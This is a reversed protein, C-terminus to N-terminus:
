AKAVYDGLRGLTQSLGEVAHFKEVVQAREAASRFVMRMTLRTKNGDEEFTATTQFQGPEDQGGHTTHTYVLREPRVIEDYVIWNPYNVGDPGHMVFQWVGGPRVDMKEITLSFGNPGWWNVVHKPDTFMEFVLDRPAPYVRTARIERDATNATGTNKDNM